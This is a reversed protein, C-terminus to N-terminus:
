DTAVLVIIVQIEVELVYGNSRESISSHVCIRIHARVRWATRLLSVANGDARVCGPQNQSCVHTLM